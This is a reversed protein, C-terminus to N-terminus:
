TEFNLASGFTIYAVFASHKQTNKFFLGCIQVSQSEEQRTATTAFKM